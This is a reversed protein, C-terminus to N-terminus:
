PKGADGPVIMAQWEKATHSDSRDFYRVEGNAMLAYFGGSFLVQDNVIGLYVQRSSAGLHRHPYDFEFTKVELEEPNTWSVPEKAEVVLITEKANRLDVLKHVSNFTGLSTKGKEGSGLQLQRFPAGSEPGGQGLPTNRGVFVQYPTKRSESPPLHPSRYIRPMRDLLSLNHRSDWPEGLHYEQFLAEEGLYPLLLVRWSVPVRRIPSYAIAPPSHGCKKEYASIALGIQKLNNEVTTRDTAGAENLSSIALRMQGLNNEAKARRAAGVVGETPRREVLFIGTATLVGMGLLASSIVWDRTSGADLLYQLLFLLIMLLLGFTPVNLLWQLSPPTAAGLLWYLIPIGLLALVNASLFEIWMRGRGGSRGQIPQESQMLAWAEPKLGVPEEPIREAFHRVQNAFAQRGQPTDEWIAIHLSEASVALGLQLAIREEWASQNLSTDVIFLIREPGLCHLALQLEDLVFPTVDTLDIFACRMTGLTRWLRAKWDHGAELNMYRPRCYRLLFLLYLMHRLLWPWRRRPDRIGALRFRPGLVRAIITRIPYAVPDNRFSRLYIAAPARNPLLRWVLVGLFSTFVSVAQSVAMSGDNGGVRPLLLGVLTGVFTGILLVNFLRRYFRLPDDLPHPLKGPLQLPTLAAPSSPTM